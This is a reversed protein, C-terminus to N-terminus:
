ATTGMAQQAPVLNHNVPPPPLAAVDLDRAPNQEQAPVIVLTYRSLQNFWKRVKEAGSLGKRKEIKAIVELLEPRKIEYASRRAWPPCCMRASSARFYRLPRRGAKRLASGRYKLRKRYVAEFTDEDALRCRHARSETFARAEDRPSCAERLRVEPYTGLSM